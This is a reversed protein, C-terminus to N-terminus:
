QSKSDLRSLNATALSSGKAQAALYNERAKALDKTTGWGMEHMGGLNNLAWVDGTGAATDFLKFAADYDKVVGEGKVLLLGLNVQAAPMNQAAAMEFFTRARAIDKPLANGQQYRIGLENQAPGHGRNAADELFKLATPVDQPLNSAGKELLKSIRFLAELNGQLAAERYWKAAQVADRRAQNLGGEYDLAVALQANADGTRALRLKKIFTLDQLEAPSSQAFGSGPAATLFAFALCTALCLTPSLRNINVRKAMGTSRGRRGDAFYAINPQNAFKRQMM